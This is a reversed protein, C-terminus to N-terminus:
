CHIDYHKGIKESYTSLKCSTGPNYDQELDHVIDTKHTTEQHHSIYVSNRFMSTVFMTEPSGMM